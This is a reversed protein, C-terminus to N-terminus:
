LLLLWWCQWWQNYFVCCFRVKLEEHKSIKKRKSVNVKSLTL